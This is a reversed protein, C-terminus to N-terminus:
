SSCLCGAGLVYVSVLCVSYLGRKMTMSIAKGLALLRCVLRLACSDTGSVEATWAPLLALM